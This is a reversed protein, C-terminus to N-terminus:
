KLMIAESLKSTNTVESVDSDKVESEPELRSRAEQVNGCVVCAKKRATAKAAAEDPFQKRFCVKCFGRHGSQAAKPPKHNTKCWGAAPTKPAAPALAILAFAVLISLAMAARLRSAM